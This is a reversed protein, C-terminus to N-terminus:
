ALERVQVFAQRDRELVLALALLPRVRVVVLAAERFEDFPQQAVAPRQVLLRDYELRAPLADLDFPGDLVVVLVALIGEGEDIVDVGM